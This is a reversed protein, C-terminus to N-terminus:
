NNCGSLKLEYLMYCMLYNDHFSSFLWVMINFIDISAELINDIVERTLNEKM